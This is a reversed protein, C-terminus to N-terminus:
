AQLGGGAALSVLLFEVLDVVVLAAVALCALGVRLGSNITQQLESDVDILERGALRVVPSWIM